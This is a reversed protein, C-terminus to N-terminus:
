KLNPYKRRKERIRQVTEYDGRQIADKLEIDEKLRALDAQRKEEAEIDKASKEKKQLIFNVVRVILSFLNLFFSQM